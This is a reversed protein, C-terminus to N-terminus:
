NFQNNNPFRKIFHTNQLRILRNLLIVLPTQTTQWSPLANNEATPSSILALLQLLFTLIAAQLFKTGM